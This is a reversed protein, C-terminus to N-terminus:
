EDVGNTMWRRFIERNISEQQPLGAAPIKALDELTRADERARTQVAALSLDPWRSNYRKDGDGSAMRPEERLMRERTGHYLCHRQAVSEDAALVTRVVAAVILVSLAFSSKM